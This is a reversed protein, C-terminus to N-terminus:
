FGFDKAHANATHKYGHWSLGTNRVRNVHQERLMGHVAVGRYTDGKRQRAVGAM